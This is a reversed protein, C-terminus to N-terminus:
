FSFAQKSLDMYTKDLGSAQYFSKGMNQNGMFRM